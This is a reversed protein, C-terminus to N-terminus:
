QFYYSVVAAMKYCNLFQFDCLFHVDYFGPVNKVSDQIILTLRPFPETFSNYIGVCDVILNPLLRLVAFVVCVVAFKQIQEVVAMLALIM